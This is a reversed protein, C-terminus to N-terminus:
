GIEVGEWRHWNETWAEVTEPESTEEDHRICAPHHVAEAPLIVPRVSEISYATGPGFCGNRPSKFVVPQAPDFDRLRAILEGVTLTPAPADSQAYFTRAM